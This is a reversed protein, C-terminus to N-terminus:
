RQLGILRDVSLAGPGRVFIILLLAAWWAHVAWWEGPFVFIQIVATMVLLGLAGFRTLLGLVLLVPLTLEGLTAGVTALDAAWEPLGPFYVNGFLFYTSNEINPTPLRLGLADITEVKGLGSRWFVRAVLLRAFLLAVPELKDALGAALFYAHRAKEIVANM